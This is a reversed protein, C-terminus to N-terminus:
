HHFACEILLRALTETSGIDRSVVAIVRECTRFSSYKMVSTIVKEKCFACLYAREITVNNDTHNEKVNM